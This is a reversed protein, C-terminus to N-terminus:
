DRVDIVFDPTPLSGDGAASVPVVHIDFDGRGKARRYTLDLRYVREEDELSWPDLMVWVDVQRDCTLFAIKKVSSIAGLHVLLDVTAPDYDRISKLDAADSTQREALM